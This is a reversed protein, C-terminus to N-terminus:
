MVIPKILAGFMEFADQFTRARFAYKGRLISAKGDNYQVINFQENDVFPKDSGKMVESPMKDLFAVREARYAAEKQAQQELAKKKDENAM